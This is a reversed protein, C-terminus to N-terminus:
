RRCNGHRYGNNCGQRYGKSCDRGGRKHYARHGHRDDKCRGNFKHMHSDYYLRQQENLVSRIEQNHAEKDKFMQTRLAGIEDITKNIANMNVKDATRLTNLHVQKEALLNRNNKMKKMFAFHLDDIKKQQEATLDPINRHKCDRPKNVEEARTQAVTIMSGLSFMSLLMITLVLSGLKKM